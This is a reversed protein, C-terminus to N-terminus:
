RSRRRMIRPVFLILALLWGIVSTIAGIQFWRSTYQFVVTHEGAPLLVGRLAANVRYVEAPAGNVTATWGPYYADALVLLGPRPTAAQIAVRLASESVITAAMPGGTAGVLEPIPRAVLAQRAVDITRLRMPDADVVTEYVIFARPLAATNEYLLPGEPRAQGILEWGPGPASQEHDAVLYRVNLLGWLAADLAAPELGSLGAHAPLAAEGLLVARLAAYDRSPLTVGDYGDASALGVALNRNPRLEEDYKAYAMARRAWADPLSERLTQARAAENELPFREAAISAYRANGWHQSLQRTTAAPAYIEPPMAQNLALPRSAFFLEVVVIGGVLLFAWVNAMGHNLVLLIAAYVIVGVVSWLLVVAPEPLSQESGALYTRGMLALLLLLTAVTGCLLALSLRRREVPPLDDRLRDAGLAALAALGFNVLLLWPGAADFAAAGPMIAHPLAFFPTEAGLALIFGFVALLLFFAAWRQRAIQVAGFFALLAGGVGIYGAMAVGPATWYRPLLALAVEHRNVAAAPEPPVPAASAQSHAIAELTPLLQAASLIGGILLFLAPVLLPWWRSSQEAPPAFALFVCFLAVAAFAYYFEQIHGATFSFATVIGGLLLWAAAPPVSARRACLLLWPLWVATHALNLQEVHPLLFGGAGFCLAGIWAAFVTAGLGHRLFLYMGALAWWVHLLVSWTLAAPFSFLLFLVNPPYLIGAQINALLPAGLYVLPNWLPAEGQSLLERAYAKYPYFLLVLDASAIVGQGLVSKWLFVLAILLFSALAAADFIFPRQQQATM